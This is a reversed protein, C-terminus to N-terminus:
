QYLPTSRLPAFIIGEVTFSTNDTDGTGSVLSYTHSDSGDEDTTSLIAVVEGGNINENFSSSSLSIDTPVFLVSLKSIFADFYGSNTQGDLDGSTEGAIYISGDSGTTLAYAEEYDTSGLLKTWEVTPLGISDENDAM